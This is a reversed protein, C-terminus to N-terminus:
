KDVFKRVVQLLMAAASPAPCDELPFTDFCPELLDRLAGTNRRSVSKFESLDSYDTHATVDSCVSQPLSHITTAATTTAISDETGDSDGCEHDCESHECARHINCNCDTGPLDRLDFDDLCILSRYEQTLDLEPNFQDWSEPCDTKRM